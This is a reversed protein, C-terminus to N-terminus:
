FDDQAIIRQISYRQDVLPNLRNHDTRDYVKLRCFNLGNAAPGLTLIVKQTRKQANEETADLTLQTEESIPNDQDDYLGLIIHRPQHSSSVAETQLIRVSLAGSSITRKDSLLRVGVKQAKDERAKRVEIAPIVLEQLSAGGHAYRKGAGRQLYRNVARPVCVKLDAEIDSFASIPFVYGGDGLVDRAVICRNRRLVPGEVEPFSEQMADPPDDHMYLFGHDAVVVIRYVNWNNLTRILQQLEGVAKDVEDLVDSETKRNDGAADIRDHYIYVLPHIKFLARGEDRGYQSVEDYPLARSDPRDGQLIRERNATGETSRGDISPTEDGLTILSHPLLHAMGVSTVSPLAALLPHLEVQKRADHQTMLDALEQAVEYRLADSVIVATKQDVPGIFRDYFDGQVSISLDGRGTVSQQLEAQWNINLPHIFRDHYHHLFRTYAEEISVALEPAAQHLSTYSRAAKRYHTDCLYLEETYASLYDNVTGLSLTNYGRQVQYFSAMHWLADAALSTDDPADRLPSVVNRTKSPASELWAVAQEIRRRRLVPTMYGFTTEPGYIDLLKTEDVEPALEQLVSEPTRDLAGHERWAQALGEMRNLTLTSQIRLKRYPDDPDIEGIPRVLLNYKMKQAATHVNELTFAMEDLEFQESLLRGMLNSLGLSECTKRYAEFARRSTAQRLVGAFLQEEGPPTKFGVDLHFAALGLQLRRETLRNNKLVSSLFRQRGNYQLEPKYYRQILERHKADLEFREMFDAVRDVRLERNAVLLDALPYGSLTSPRPGPVYLFVPTESLEGELRHKLRFPAGDAVICAIEDQNWGEIEEKFQGESDFFFLVRLSPDNQFKEIARDQLAM